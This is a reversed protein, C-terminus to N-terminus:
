NKKRFITNIYTDGYVEYGKSCVYSIIEPQKVAMPSEGFRLTEVVLATPAFRDFDLSRLIDMDLGEVDISIFDPATSLTEELITNVRKLPMSVTQYPHGAVRRAQADEYSFTNWGSQAPPFVFFDAAAEESFGLGVNLVTDRPRTRKLKQFLVPEPEVLVGRSGRQYFFFTNSGRVPENAGIDLYTPREIGMTAFLYHLIRDEGAQAYSPRGWGRLIYQCADLKSRLLASNM